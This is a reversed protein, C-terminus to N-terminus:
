CCTPEASDILREMRALWSQACDCEQMGITVREFGTLVWEDAMARVVRVDILPTLGDIGAGTDPDRLTAVLAHRHLAPVPQEHITLVGRFPPTFALNHKPIVRGTDRLRVVDVILIKDM